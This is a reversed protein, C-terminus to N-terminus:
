EPWPQAVEKMADSSAHMYHASTSKSRHRLLVKISEPQLGSEAMRTAATHRLLQTRPAPNRIGANRLAKQWIATIASSTSLPTKPVVSRIFVVDTRVKPREHEIYDLLADGVAQPLPLASRRRGKGCVRILGSEWDIDRLRLELVDRCRLGVQVLLFLIATDRRATRGHIGALMRNVEEASLVAPSPDAPPQRVSPVAHMLEPSCQGTAVAYRVYARVGVVFVRLGQPPRDRTLQLVADRLNKATYEAPDSGLKQTVKEIKPRYRAASAESLGRNQKLWELCEEVREDRVRDPRIRREKPGQKLFRLFNRAYKIRKSMRIGDGTELCSCRVAHRAFVPLDGLSLQNVRRGQSDAWVSLHWANALVAYCYNREYGDRHLAAAFAELEKTAPGSRMRALSGRKRYFKDLLDSEEWRALYRVVVLALEVVNL